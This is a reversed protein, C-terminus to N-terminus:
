HSTAGQNGGGPTAPQMGGASGRAGADGNSPSSDPAGGPTSPQMGGSSGQGSVRGEGPTRQTQTQSGTNAAGTPQSRAPASAGVVVALIVGCVPLARPMRNVSKRNM